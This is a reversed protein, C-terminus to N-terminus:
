RTTTHKKLSAGVDSEDSWIEYCGRNVKQSTYIDKDWPIDHDHIASLPLHGAKSNMIKWM